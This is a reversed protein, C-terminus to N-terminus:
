GGTRFAIKTYLYLFVVTLVSVRVLRLVLGPSVRVLSEPTLRAALALYAATLGLLTYTPESYERSSSLQAVITGVLLSLLYPRLRWLEPEQEQMKTSKLRFLGTTALYFAATYFTGGFFGLETYAELFSNHAHNGAMDMYNRAGIGFVPAGRFAALGKSWLAIRSQATGKSMSIETQRGSFLVLVPLLLLIVMSGKRAGYRAQFLVVLGALMGLLGGRSHTLHLGYAFVTMVGLWGLRVLFGVKRSIAYLCITIGVAIIRALDNPNAYIGAAQLRVVVINEGTDPDIKMQAEAYPAVTPLDVVKHYCLLAVCTLVLAYVAIALLLRSVRAPTNVLAVVLLYYVITKVFDTGWYHAGWGDGRALLSVVIGVLMGFVCLTIPNEALSRTRLLPLLTSVGAIVCAVIVVNYIPWGQIEPLIDAPRMFVLGNLVLFLVWALRSGVVRNQEECPFLLAQVGANNVAVTM